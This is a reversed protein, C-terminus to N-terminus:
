FIGLDTGLPFPVGKDDAADGGDGTGAKINLESGPCGLIRVGTEHVEGGLLTVVIVIPWFKPLRLVLTACTHGQKTM